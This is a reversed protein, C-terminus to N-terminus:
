HQMSRKAAIAKNIAEITKGARYDVIKKALELAKAKDAISFGDITAKNAKVRQEWRVSNPDDILMNLTIIPDDHLHDSKAPDTQIGQSQMYRSVESYTYYEPIHAVVTDPWEANLKEAVAKMGAQNGGSDGIFIINKFGTSKRLSRATDELVMRFTEERMSITGPSKMHITPPDLDGEPVLKIIPACLANGMKRAIAECNAHLVFNHKGSALYPGNPEMGGTSIIVTNKGGKVADRIDMWTLEEMWVSDIGAIPRPADKCNVPNQACQGGGMDRPDEAPPTGRQAMVLTPASMMLTLVVIRFAKM